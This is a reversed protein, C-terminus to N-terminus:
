EVASKYISSLSNLKPITSSFALFYLISVPKNMHRPVNPEFRERTNASACGCVCVICANSRKRQQQDTKLSSSVGILVIWLIISVIFHHYTIRVDRIMECSFRFLTFLSITVPVRVRARMNANSLNFGTHTYKNSIFHIIAEYINSSVFNSHWTQMRIILIHNCRDGLIWWYMCAAM